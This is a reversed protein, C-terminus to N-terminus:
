IVRFCNFKFDREHDSSLFNAFTGSTPDDFLRKAEVLGAQTNTMGSPYPIRLIRSAAPYYPLFNFNVRASSAFTVAAYKPDVVNRHYEDTIGFMYHLAKKGKEFECRRVSGSGDMVVVIDHIEPTRKGRTVTKQKGPQIQLFNAMLKNATVSPPPVTQFAAILNLFAM